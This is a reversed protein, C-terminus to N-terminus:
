FEEGQKEICFNNTKIWEFLLPKMSFNQITEHTFTAVFENPIEIGYFHHPLSNGDDEMSIFENNLKAFDIISNNHFNFSHTIWSYPYYNRSVFGTIYKYTKDIQNIRKASYHCQHESHIYGNMQFVKIEEVEPLVENYSNITGFFTLNALLWENVSHKEFQYMEGYFAEGEDLMIEYFDVNQLEEIM